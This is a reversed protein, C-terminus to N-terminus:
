RVAYHRHYPCHAINNFHNLGKFYRDALNRSQGLRRLLLEPSLNQLPDLRECLQTRFDLDANPLKIGPHAFFEIDLVNDPFGAGLM